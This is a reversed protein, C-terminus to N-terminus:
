TTQKMNMCGITTHDPGGGCTIVLAMVNVGVILMIKLLSFVFELEGYVRIFLFSTLITLFGFVTVWIASSIKIWFEVIVAAAVIEAPVSILGSYIQNWGNAFSLAPDFFLESYRVIGGNLPVLAGM